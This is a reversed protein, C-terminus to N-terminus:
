GTPLSWRELSLGTDMAVHIEVHMNEFMYLPLGKKYHKHKLIIMHGTARFGHSGRDQQQHEVSHKYSGNQEALRIGHPM